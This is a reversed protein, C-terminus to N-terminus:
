LTTLTMDLIMQKVIENDGGTSCHCLVWSVSSQSEKQPFVASCTAKEGLGYCLHASGPNPCWM